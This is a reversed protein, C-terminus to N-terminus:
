GTRKRGALYTQLQPRGIARLPLLVANHLNNYINATMYRLTEVTPKAAPEHIFPLFCVVALLRLVGSLAFLIEYFTVPKLGFGFTTTPPTWQWERLVQAIVGSALGGLCGAVNVIISNVSFYASGGNTESKADDDGPSIMELVLNLNAVEVGTWFAAGIGALVYGLWVNEPGLLCWGFSVPVLGLGAIILVPKNGMRDAARGWIPLVLLQAIMPCILLMLQVQINGARSGGPVLVRDIVYLTVFQGMFSVAFLLMGAFAAFCLFQRNRLPGSLSRILEAGKQPRRPPEPVAHFLSIDTTGIVSACLFIITCWMMTLMPRGGPAQRDLLWGVVFAAPIATCIGLQRRRSFYVGRLREPVVDAMWSTWAPSGVAGASQMFFILILFVGMAAESAAVGYSRIMWFPLLAIPIWLLRNTYGGWFFIRKRQGTGEILLSAPM